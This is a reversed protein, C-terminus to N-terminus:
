TSSVMGKGVEEVSMGLRGKSSKIGYYDLLSLKEEMAVTWWCRWGKILDVVATVEIQIKIKQERLERHRIKAWNRMHKNKELSPGKVM